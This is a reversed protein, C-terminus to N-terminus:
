RISQFSNNKNKIKEKHLAYIMDAIELAPNKLREIPSNFEVYEGDLIRAKNIKILENTARLYEYESGLEFIEIPKKFSAAESLMSISDSTVVIRDAIEMSYYIYNPIKNFLDPYDEKWSRTKGYNFFSSKPFNSEIVGRIRKEADESTRNSFNVIVYYDNKKALNVVKQAFDKDQEKFSGREQGLGGVAVSLIKKDSNHNPLKFQSVEPRITDLFTKGVKHPVFVMEYTKEEPFVSKDLKTHLAMFDFYKIDVEESPTYLQAFTTNKFHQNNKSLFFAMESPTDGGSILIDPKGFDEIYSNIQNKELYQCNFEHLHNLGNNIRRAVGLCAHHVGKRYKPMTFVWINPAYVM